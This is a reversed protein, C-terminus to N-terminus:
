VDLGSKDMRCEWKNKKTSKNDLEKNTMYTQVQERMM